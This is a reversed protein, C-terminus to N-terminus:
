AAQRQAEAAERWRIPRFVFSLVMNDRANAPPAVIVVGNPSAAFLDPALETMADTMRVAPVGGSRKSAELDEVSYFRADDIQLHECSAGLAIAATFRGQGVPILMRYYGDATSKAELELLSQGTADALIVPITVGGCEFDGSRLDLSHRLTTFLSLNLPLGHRRVEAPVYMRVVDNVYSLGHRRLGETAADQDLLKVSMNTGMNVDQDFTEFIRVEEESPLFL